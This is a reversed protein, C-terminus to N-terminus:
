SRGFGFWGKRAPQAKEEVKEEKKPVPTGNAKDEVAKRKQGPYEIYNWAVDLFIPKVPIPRLRPPYVVLNSLDLHGASPYDDLREIVPAAHASVLKASRQAEANLIHIEVLAAQQTTLGQLHQKLDQIQSSSVDLNPPNGPTLSGAKSANEAQSVLEHARSHLALANKPNGHLSHVRALALCRLASFYSTKTALEGQLGQDNAVGPLEKISELSQLTTDYLVVQERLRLQKKGKSESTLDVEADGDTKRKRKKQSQPDLVAGDMTGCLIRNRGIRWGVLAYNVATRTIQLAQMRSDSQAVGDSTLEDIATKTADVADQSPILVEDYAAAREKVAFEATSKLTAALRKEALSVAALAQAINADELKVTRSRWTLTSPVDEPAIHQASGTEEKHDPREQQAAMGKRRIVEQEAPLNDGVIDDISKTRPIGLQYASYRISPEVISTLLDRFGDDKKSGTPKVLAAYIMHTESFTELCLKWKQSEFAQTGEMMSAYAGAEMVAKQDSFESEPARLLEYLKTATVTAKHLRSIVHRRTAGAIPKNSADASHMSKMYLAHAWARETTLLLLHINEPNEKIDETTVEKSEYKRGKPTTKGVRRRTSLLRQGLQKRYLGFDGVLLIENRLSIIFHTIDVRLPHSHTDKSAM